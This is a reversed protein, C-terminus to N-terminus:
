RRATWTVRLLRRWCWLEFADTRRHEGKKYELEWIWVRSISFGYSPSSPGKNAIDRSKLISDLNTMAKRGLLLCWHAIWTLTHCFDFWYQLAIMLWSFLFWYIKKFTLSTFLWASTVFGGFFGSSRPESFMQNSCISVLPVPSSLPAHLGARTEGYRARCVEEM